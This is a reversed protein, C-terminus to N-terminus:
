GQWKQMDYELHVDYANLQSSTVAVNNMNGVDRNQLELFHVAVGLIFAKWILLGELCPFPPLYERIEGM